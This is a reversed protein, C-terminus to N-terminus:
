KIMGLNIVEQETLYRWHGRPLDKKTLDAYVVRDLKLIEYDLTQFIRPVIKSRSSFIEVGVETKPADDVYSIKRVKVVKGDVNVGEEIKKLDASRLPRDLELHFLKRFGNKPSNLRKSLEGDNTFLLLGTADAGMKGVPKLEAKTASSILGVATRHGRENRTSTTFDKPKNLLIYEKKVPDLLRGDFRVEDTRKVKHGMETVPKGNVTVSGAAILVDAERRSCVGSNSVYKNLRILDSDVNTRRGLKQPGDTDGQQRNGSKHGDSGNAGGKIPASGRSYSKKRYNGGQRGSARGGANSKSRNSSSNQKNSESRSM